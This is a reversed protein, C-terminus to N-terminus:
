IEFIHLFLTCLFSLALKGQARLFHGPDSWKVSSTSHQQVQRLKKLIEQRKEQPIATEEVNQSNLDSLPKPIVIKQTIKNGIMEM